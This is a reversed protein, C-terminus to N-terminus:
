RPLTKAGMMDEVTATESKTLVEVNDPEAAAIQPIIRHTSSTVIWSWVWEGGFMIASAVGLGLASAYDGGGKSAVWTAIMGSIAAALNMLKRKFWGTKNLHLVVRGVTGKPALVVAHVKIPEAEADNDSM